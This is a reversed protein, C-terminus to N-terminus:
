QVVSRARAVTGVNLVTKYGAALLQRKAMGSRSGSRCFLLVPADKAWDEQTVKGAFDGLPINVAGQASGEAFEEPTRVDVLKAGKRHLAKAEDVSDMTLRPLIMFVFLVAGLGILMWINM